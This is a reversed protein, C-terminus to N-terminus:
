YVPESQSSEEPMLVMIPIHRDGARQKYLPFGIYTESASQWYSAYEEDIAEHSIYVRVQGNISCTAHPHAKLNFYWGPNQRQGWNSAILAICDPKKSYRIFVLPLTRYLGSKAGTTTVIAMPVGALISTLTKRGSSLKLYFRDLHHLTHSLFWSGPNTSAIKQILSHFRSYRHRTM